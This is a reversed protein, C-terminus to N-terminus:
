ECSWRFIRMTGGDEEPFERVLSACPDPVGKELWTATYPTFGVNADSTRLVIYDPRAARVYRLAAGEDSYPLYWLRAGAYYAVTSSRSMIMKDHGPQDSIWTGAKRLARIRSQAFEGANWVSPVSPLATGLVVLVVYVAGAARLRPPAATAAAGILSALWRGLRAAGIAAWPVLFLAVPFLHREWRQEMTLLPLLYLGSGLLLFWAAPPVKRPRLMALGVGLIALAIMGLGGLSPYWTVEGAIARVRSLPHATIAALM